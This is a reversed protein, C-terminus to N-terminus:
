VIIKEKEVTGGLKETNDTALHWDTVTFGGQSGRQWDARKGKRESLGVIRHTLWIFCLTFTM